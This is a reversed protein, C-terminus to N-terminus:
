AQRSALWALLLEPWRDVPLGTAHTGFGHGGRKFLYLEVPARADMWARHLSLSGDIRLPDDAAGLVFLPPSDSTAVCDEVSPLYCVAAADPRRPRASRVAIEATIRGDASFGLLTVHSHGYGRVLEIAREGDAVAPHLANLTPVVVNRVTEGTTLFSGAGVQEEHAWSESGPAPGDWLALPAGGTTM